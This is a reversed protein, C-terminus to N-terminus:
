YTKVSFVTARSAVVLKLPGLLGHHGAWPLAGHGSRVCISSSVSLSPAYRTVAGPDGASVAAAATGAIDGDVLIEGSTETDHADMYHCADSIPIEGIM